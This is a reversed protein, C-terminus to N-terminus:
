GDCRRCGAESDVHVARHRFAPSIVEDEVESRSERADLALPGYSMSLDYTDTEVRAPPCAVAKRPAEVGRVLDVRHRRVAQFEILAVVEREDLEDVAHLDM